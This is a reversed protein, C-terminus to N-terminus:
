STTCNPNRCVGWGSHNYNNSIGNAAFGAAPYVAHDKTLSKAPVAPPSTCSGNCNVLLTAVLTWENDDDSAAANFEVNFEEANPKNDDLIILTDITDYLGAM